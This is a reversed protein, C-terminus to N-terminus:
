LRPRRRRMMARAASCAAVGALMSTIAFAISLMTAGEIGGSGVLRRVVPGAAVDVALQDDGVRGIGVPQDAIQRLGPLDVLVTQGEGELDLTAHLEVAAVLQGGLIRREAEM